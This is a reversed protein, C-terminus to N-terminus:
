RWTRFIVLSKGTKVSSPCTLGTMKKLAEVLNDPNLWFAPKENTVLRDRLFEPIGTIWKIQL